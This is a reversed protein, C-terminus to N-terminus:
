ITNVHNAIIDAARSINDTEVCEVLNDDIDRTTVYLLASGETERKAPDRYDVFVAARLGNEHEVYICPCADNKWSMDLGDVNRESLADMVMAMTEFNDYDPFAYAASGLGLRILMYRDRAWMVAGEFDTFRAHMAKSHESTVVFSDGTVTISVGHKGLSIATSSLNTM